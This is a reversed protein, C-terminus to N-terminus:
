PRPSPLSAPNTAPTTGSPRAAPLTNGSGPIGGQPHGGPLTTVTGYTYTASGSMPSGNATATVTAAGAAHAPAIFVFQAPTASVISAAPLPTGDVLVQMNAASTFGLGSITVQNGGQISGSAPSVGSIYPANTLTFTAPAVSPTGVVTAAVTYTGPTGNASATVSAGGNTGVPVAATPALTATAGGGAPTVTFAVRAGQIPEGYASALTVSLPAPFALNIGGYQNNGGTITLTFGRSEFAGIDCHAGQPRTVGRQDRANVPLTGTTAACIADDGADVAPSGPLLPLTETTGGYNGPAGILPAPNVIDGQTGNTIGTAGEISSVLNHSGSSVTGKIDNGFATGNVATNAAIITNTLSLPSVLFVGGGAGASNGAITSNTITLTGNGYIAGGEDGQNGTFTSNTISLSGYTNIAGGRAFLSGTVTNHRFTCGIITMTGNNGIGGGGTGGSFAASNGSITSATLTLTANVDNYIGGSANATNGTITSGTVNLAGYNAIGGGINGKGNTITLNSISTTTGSGTVFIQTAHQGDVTVGPESTPGVIAVDATLTLTSVVAITGRGTGNFTITTTDLAFGIADRLRCTANTANQCEAITGASGSDRTTGVTFAFHQPEYAGIACRAAARSLGRQDKGAVPAPGSTGACVTANGADIAPSGPRLGITQTPGSNNRLPGLLPASTVIDGNVGGTIGGTGSTSGILNHGGSTVTGHIDPHPSINGAVITNTLTIATTTFIGGGNCSPCATANGSITDNTLTASGNSVIGGGLSAINGSLTSNTLSLTGGIDNLIGGGYNATNASFTSGVVTLTGFNLIGGGGLAASNGSFTSNTITLTGNNRIAGGGGGGASNASLVCASLSLTGSNTIAGGDTSANGHALTVNAISASVGSPVDLLGRANGGDITVGAGSTPGSISMNTPITLMGSLTITGTVGITIVDGSTSRILCYRLDGSTGTGAGTDTLASVTCGAAAVPEAHRVIGLVCALAAVGLLVLRRLHPGWGGSGRGRHSSGGSASLVRLTHM